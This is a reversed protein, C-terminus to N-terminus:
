AKAVEAAVGDHLETWAKEFKEVGEVELLDVVETYSIGLEELADLVARSEDYTGTVTDGRVTGHDAAADLTKEPM